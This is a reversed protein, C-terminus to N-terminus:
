RYLISEIKSLSVNLLKAIVEKALKNPEWRYACFWRRLDEDGEICESIPLLFKVDEGFIKPHMEYTEIKRQVEKFDPNKQLILRLSKIFNSYGVAIIESIEDSLKSKGLRKAHKLISTLDKYFDEIWKTGFRKLIDTEPRGVRLPKDKFSSGYVYEMLSNRLKNINNGAINKDSVWENLKEQTISSLFSIPGESKILEFIEDDVHLLSDL